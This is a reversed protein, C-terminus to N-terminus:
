PMTPSRYSTTGLSVSRSFPRHNPPTMGRTGTAVPSPRTPTAKPNASPTRGPRAESARLQDIQARAMHDLRGGPSGNPTPSPPGCPPSSPAHMGARIRMRAGDTEVILRARRCAFDAIDLGIPEQRRFHFGLEKGRLRWWLLEEAPTPDRHVARAFGLLRRDTTCPHYTGGPPGWSVSAEPAGSHRLRSCTLGGEPGPGERGRRRPLPRLPSEGRGRPPLLAERRLGRRTTPLSTDGGRARRARGRPSM